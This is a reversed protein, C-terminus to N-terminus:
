LADLGLATLSFGIGLAVCPSNAAVAYDRQKRQQSGIQLSVTCDGTFSLQDGAVLRITNFDGVAISNTM